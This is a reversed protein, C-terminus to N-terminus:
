SVEMEARAVWRGGMMEWAMARDPRASAPDTHGQCVQLMPCRRCAEGNATPPFADPHGDNLPPDADVLDAMMGRAAAEVDDLWDDPGGTKDTWILPVVGAGSLYYLEADPDEGWVHRVLAAQIRLQHQDEGRPRGTKWDRLRLRGDQRWLLDLQVWVPVGRVDVLLPDAEAPLVLDERSPLEERPIAYLTELAQEGRELIRPGLTAPDHGSYYYEEVPPLAEPIPAM